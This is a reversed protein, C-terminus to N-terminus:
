RRRLAGVVVLIVIAGVLSALFGVQEGPAYWGMTRGFWGALLAGGIGLLITMILGMRDRGPKLLRALVGVVLGVLIIWLWSSGGFVGDM